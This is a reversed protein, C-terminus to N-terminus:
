LDLEDLLAQTAPSDPDFDPPVNYNRRRGQLDDIVEQYWAPPKGTRLTTVAEQIKNSFLFVLHEFIENGTEHDAIPADWTESYMLHMFEADTADFTALNVIQRPDILQKGAKGLGAYDRKELDKPLDTGKMGEVLLFTSKGFAATVLQHPTTTGLTIKLTRSLSMGIFKEMNAVFSAIVEESLPRIGMLALPDKTQGVPNMPVADGGGGRTAGHRTEEQAEDLSSLHRLGIKKAFLFRVDEKTMRQISSPPRERHVKVDKAPSAPQAQTRFPRPAFRSSAPQAQSREPKFRDVRQYSM